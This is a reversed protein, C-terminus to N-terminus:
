TQTSINRYPTLEIRKSANKYLIQTSLKRVQLAKRRKHLKYYKVQLKPEGQSAQTVQLIQSTTQTILTTRTVVQAYKYYKYPYQTSPM